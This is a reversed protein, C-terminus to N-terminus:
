VVNLEKIKLNATDKSFYVGNKIDENKFFEMGDGGNHCQAYFGDKTIKTVKCPQVYKGDKNSFIAYM